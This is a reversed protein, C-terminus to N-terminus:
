RAAEVKRASPHAPRGVKTLLVLGVAVFGALTLYMVSFSGTADLLWALGLPVVAQNIGQVMQATGIISGVAKRGFYEPWIQLHLVLNGGIAVGLTAAAVFSWFEGHALGFIVSSAFLMGGWFPLVWRVSGVRGILPGWFVLRSVVQLGSVMSIAVAATGPDMGSDSLYSFLFLISTNPALLVLAMGAAVTWFGPSHMAEHTTWDVVPLPAPKAGAAAAEPTGPAADGDPQWVSGEIRRALFLAPLIGVAVAIAGMAYWGVRWGMGAVFFTLIPPLIFNGVPPAMAAIGYATSRKRNFWNAIMAGPLVSQLASRSVGSLVGIFFYFQWPEAVVGGGALAVGMGLVSCVMVLKPGRRDVVRGLLPGALAATVFGVSASAVLTSRSWGLEATMAPLFISFTFGGTASQIFLSAFAAVM